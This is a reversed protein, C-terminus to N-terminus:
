RISWLGSPHRRRHSSDAREAALEALRRLWEVSAANVGGEGQITEVIVAAPQDVGSSPDDLMKTLM